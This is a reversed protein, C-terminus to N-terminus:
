PEKLACYKLVDTVAIYMGIGIYTQLPLQLLLSNSQFIMGGTCGNVMSMNDHASSSGLIAKYLPADSITLPKKGWM